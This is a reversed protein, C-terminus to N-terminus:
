FRQTKKLLGELFLEFEHQQKNLLLRQTFDSAEAKFKNEDFPQRSKVGMIYFGSPQEIVPSLEEDKLRQAEQWFIDSSGVGEIYSGYKFLGSSGSKLGSAKAQSSFDIPRPKSSSLKKLEALCEQIKAKAIKRSQNKIYAEKAKEKIQSFEPIYPEKREKVKLLYFNKDVSIIPLFEGSQSKALLELVQPAWGIGPIPATESFYGTEKLTLGADKVIKNFYDKKNIHPLLSQIKDQSQSAIYELNFTLPQKFELKNTEYYQKLADESTQAEKNEFDSPLAAIYNISVQDNAKRYEQKVEEPNVALSGTLQQFLKSLIINQRAQEEFIRSQTHFVYKITEEYIRDDFKGQRQFFPYSAILEVIEQDSASIRRKKAEALLTLRQWAQNDLNLYQQMQSFNEGLQMIAQNRTAEYADKYESFSIPRDFIKGMFSPQNKDRSKVASGLGWFVFAPLILIALVIWIKKATKKNRLQKLMHYNYNLISPICYNDIGTPGTLAAALAPQGERPRKPAGLSRVPM